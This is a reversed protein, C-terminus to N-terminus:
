GLSRFSEFRTSCLGPEPAAVVNIASSRSPAIVCQLIEPIASDQKKEFCYVIGEDDAFYDPLSVPLVAPAVEQAISDSVQHEDHQREAGRMEAVLQRLRAMSGEAAEIAEQVKHNQTREREVVHQFARESALCFASGNNALTSSFSARSCAERAYHGDDRRSHRHDLVSQYEESAISLASMAHRVSGDDSSLASPLRFDDDSLASPPPADLNSLASPPRVDDSDSLASPPPTDSNSLASPPRSTDNSLASPLRRATGQSNTRRQQTTPVSNRWM